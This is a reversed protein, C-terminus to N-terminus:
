DLLKTYHTNLELAGREVTEPQHCVTRHIWNLVILLPHDRELLFGIITASYKRCLYGRTVYSFSYIKYVM